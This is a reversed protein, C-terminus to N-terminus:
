MRTKRLRAPKHRLPADVAAEVQRARQAVHVVLLVGREPRVRLHHAAGSAGKGVATCGQVPWRWM